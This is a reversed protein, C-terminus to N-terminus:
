KISLQVESITAKADEKGEKSITLGDDSGVTIGEYDGRAGFRIKDEIGKDKINYIFIFGEEDQVAAIKNDELWAM